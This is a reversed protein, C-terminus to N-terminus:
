DGLSWAGSKGQNREEGKEMQEEGEEVKEEGEEM